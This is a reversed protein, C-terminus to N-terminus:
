SEFLGRPESEITKAIQKFTRGEDNDAVLSGGMYEGKVTRFGFAEQVTKPLVAAEGRSGYVRKAVTRGQEEPRISEVRGKLGLVKCAVGLCCDLEEGRKTISTLRHKGQKHNGSRLAEVLKARLAKQRKTAM